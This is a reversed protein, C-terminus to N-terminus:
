GELLPPPRLPELPRGIREGHSPDVGVPDPVHGDVGVRDVLGLVPFSVGHERRRVRPERAEEAGGLRSRHAAPLPVPPQEREVLVERVDAEASVEDVADVPVV